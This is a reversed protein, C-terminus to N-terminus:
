AIWQAWKSQERDASERAARSAELCARLDAQTETSRARGTDCKELFKKAAADYKEVVDRLSAIEESMLWDSVQPERRAARHPARYCAGSFYM